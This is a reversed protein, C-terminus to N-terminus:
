WQIFANQFASQKCGSLNTQQATACFWKITKMEKMVAKKM